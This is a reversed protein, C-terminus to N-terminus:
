VGKWMWPSHDNSIYWGRSSRIALVLGPPNHTDVNIEKYVETKRDNLGNKLTLNLLLAKLCHIKYHRDM